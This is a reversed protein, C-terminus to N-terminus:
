RVVIQTEVRNVGETGKALNTAIQIQDQAKVTGTLLVVGGETKVAIDADKLGSDSAIATMIKGSTVTDTVVNAGSSTTTTVSTTTTGPSSSDASTPTTTAGSTTPAPTTSAGSNNYSTDTRPKDCGTVAASALALVAVYPIIRKM